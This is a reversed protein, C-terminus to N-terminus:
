RNRQYLNQAFSNYYEVPALDDTLVPLLPITSIDYQHALLSSILTDNLLSSQIADSKHDSDTKSGNEFRVADRYGNKTAVVILNQLHDDTYNLDVKFLFVSPTSHQQIETKASQDTYGVFSNRANALAANSSDADEPKHGFVEIYTALESRLFGSGPGTISGGLNFIVVGGPKLVRKINRVAEITTLQFPASFLTGFADMMVADYTESPAQNLFTRGDEHIIKLREDDTLRFYKRAIDTMGPDIEVVDITSGPYTRLYERPFTYGAGGIMLTRRHGPNFYRVLHYFPSYEFVPDDGDLYIASQVFYPDIAMAEFRRGTKAHNMQFVQVRNYENDIDHLGATKLLYISGLESGTVAFAFLVLAAINTRNVTFPVLLISVAFLLAAIIYLTRLSGVFPILFFGAAFTGAISGITSLAYLRGVTKGTDGLSALKLKVTYPTVFGLLVSAPAFLLVAAAVSRLELGAPSSAIATLVVEKVLITVSVAGGALFIATALIRVSPDRDAFRGGLWYGLSLAALIVGILSTWVYTSTGIFPSVIRSGIIEYVMVVAGCIFVVIELIYRSFANSM